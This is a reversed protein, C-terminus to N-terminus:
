DKLYIEDLIKKEIEKNNVRRKKKLILFAIKELFVTDCKMLEETKLEKNERTIQRVLIEKRLYIYVLVLTVLLYFAVDFYKLNKEVLGIGILVFMIIFLGLSIKKYNFVIFKKM